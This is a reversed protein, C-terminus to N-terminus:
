GPLKQRRETKQFEFGARRHRRRGCGLRDGPFRKEVGDAAPEEYPGYINKSRLVLQWGTAVGGAPAFIYYFGNRKYFKPGEVTPHAGNNDHGDFIIKPDSLLKTGDASMASVVLISKFGARSGAFASVMYAKGDDDWLPCPDIWGKGSRILLPKSWEGAPDKTKTMYIGFDPDPYFIYFENNHYRIAPAWVGNGHQPKSFVEAPEQSTFVHNVIRWNVLDKSHLIPLGPAANFSSATLYFDDGVRIVDPDSYDAHIIPNKYTGNGQDAVWVKSVTQGAANLALFVALLIGRSVTLM